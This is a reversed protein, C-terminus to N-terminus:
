GRRMEVERARLILFRELQDEYDARSTLRSDDEDLNLRFGHVVTLGSVRRSRVGASIVLLPEGPFLELHVLLPNQHDLMWPEEGEFLIACGERSLDFLHGERRSIGDPSSVGARVPDRYDVRVREDKRVGVLEALQLANSNEVHLEYTCSEAGVRWSIAKAPADFVGIDDGRDLQLRCRQGISLLPSHRLPFEVRVLASERALEIRCDSSTFSEDGGEPALIARILTDVTNATETHQLM